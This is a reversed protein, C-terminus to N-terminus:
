IKLLKDSVTYDWFHSNFSWRDVWGVTYTSEIYTGEKISEMIHKVIGDYDIINTHEFPENGLWMEFRNHISPPILQDDENFSWDNYMLFDVFKNYYYNINNKEYKHKYTNKLITLSKELFDKHEKPVCVDLIRSDCDLSFLVFM